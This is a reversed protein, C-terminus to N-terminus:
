PKKAMPVRKWKILKPYLIFCINAYITMTKWLWSVSHIKFMSGICIKILIPLSQVLLYQHWTKKNYRKQRSRNTESNNQPFIVKVRTGKNEVSEISIKGKHIRVLKWVLMLGIGSGTIKANIANSGRFHLKFLKKQEKAPIGIGTDTIELSWNDKDHCIIIHVEGHAPTYKIANSILNKTISDMKEKDFWVNQYEFNSKYDLKIQKAEAYSYFAHCIGEMYTNLEHESIRLSSSYVNAKSFNILNTTLRLLTDVNKMATLM